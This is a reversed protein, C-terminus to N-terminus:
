EVLKYFLFVGLVRAVAAVPVALLMGWVGYLKGGALLAFVIILPHLGVKDGLIRPSLINCELQQILLIAVAAFAALRPSQSYALGVSPIAGLIPGFYPFLEFIGCILGILLAFKIGLLFMTVGTIVGVLLAVLLHGKIFEKLVDDIERAVKIVEQRAGVPLFQLFGDRIKEWDKLIYFALIPTFVVAVVSNVLGFFGMLFRRLTEYLYERIRNVTEDVMSNISDAPFPMQEVQDAMREAQGVYHPLLRAVQGLETAMAPIAFWLLLFMGLALGLYILLIAWGRRVGRTEVARVLPFILYALAMAVMFPIIVQRVLFLFYFTTVVVLFLLLYRLTKSHFWPGM